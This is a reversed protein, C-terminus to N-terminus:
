LEDKSAPKTVVEVSQQEVLQVALKDTAEDISIHVDVTPPVWAQTQDRSVMILQCKSEFVRLAPEFVEMRFLKEVARYNDNEYLPTNMEAWIM